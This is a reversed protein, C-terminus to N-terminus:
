AAPATTASAMAPEATDQAGASSGSPLPAFGNKEADMQVFTTLVQSAWALWVPWVDLLHGINEPTVPVVDGAEDGVGEWELVTVRALAKGVAVETATDDGAEVAARVEADKRAALMMASTVPAVRVRLGPLLDFWRPERHPNLRIM